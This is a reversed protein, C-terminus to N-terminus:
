GTASGSISPFPLLFPIFTVENKSQFSVVAFFYRLSRLFPINPTTVVFSLSFYCYSARNQSERSSFFGSCHKWRSNFEFFCLRVFFHLTSDVCAGASDPEFLPDVYVSSPPTM